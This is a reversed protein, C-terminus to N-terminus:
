LNVRWGMGMLGGSGLGDTRILLAPMLIRKGGEWGGLVGRPDLPATLSVTPHKDASDHVCLSRHVNFMSM